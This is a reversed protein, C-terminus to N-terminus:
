LENKENYYDVYRDYLQQSFGKLIDNPKELTVPAYKIPCTKKRNWVRYNNIQNIDCQYKKVFDKNLEKKNVKAIKKGCAFYYEPFYFKEEYFDYDEEHYLTITKYFMYKQNKIIYHFNEEDESGTLHYDDQM